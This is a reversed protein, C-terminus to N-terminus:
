RAPRQELPAGGQYPFERRAESRPLSSDCVKLTASLKLTVPEDETLKGEIRNLLLEAARFGIDFAPQVVTTIAPFFLDDVTLEDFTVMGVDGPTTLGCDRLARLVGLGTPGNTAFIAEPRSAKRALREASMAAVDEPRLNGQWIWDESPEIGAKRLAQRYGFLRQRENKLSQPGTIAAIRRYGQTILHHVGMAAADTNEISVNDVPVRDPIRDLCVIRVGAQILRSILNVPTPSAAVVMLIGEVRQSRLLSLLDKQREGDDDSNVAILSYGRALAASEAGRIVRPFYPITMDPVIIGLTRTKNTKLSRAVYNPHYNLERIAAQVKRRLPESVRVSGTIVHSVTGVAVGALDAVDKITPM